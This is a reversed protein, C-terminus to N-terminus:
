FGFNTGFHVLIPLIKRCSFHVGDPLPDGVYRDSGKAYKFTPPFSIFGERWGAFVGAKGEAAAAPDIAPALEDRALIKDLSRSHVASRVEADPMGQIRFNFDGLFIVTPQQSALDSRTWEGQRCSLAMHHM